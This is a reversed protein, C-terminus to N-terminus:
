KSTSQLYGLTIHPHRNNMADLLCQYDDFGFGNHLAIVAKYQPAPGLADAIDDAFNTYITSTDTM